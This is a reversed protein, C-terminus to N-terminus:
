RTEMPHHPHGHERRLLPAQNARGHHIKQYPDTMTARSIRCDILFLGGQARAQALAAPLGAEQQLLVGDGGLAKALAVFDPSSWRALEPDFGQSRLKHVEAGYGADNLLLLVLPVRSRVATELEQLHFLLSGDGEILIRPERPDALAMGLALPLTQGVAGFQSSFQIDADEPLALYMGVFGFFHGAGCTIRSGRPLASSLQRMLLRPDLGDVPRELPPAPRALISRAQENRWGESRAKRGELLAHAAAATKRADGRLFRGPLVGIQAPPQVDVRAVSASPFLLGGETTYYGLEAGFGVVFDADALLEESPGSSFAGAIGLDWPHGDFLGKAQLSTALLAGVRDALRVIEERAGSARAGRGGIIVPRKAALLQDVLWEVSDADAGAHPAVYRTAPLYEFDWELEQELLDVPFALAVPGPQAQAAYFAEAIDEALADPRGLRLYRTSCAEVFRRQDMAQLDNRNGAPLEPLLLVLPTRNRAAVMLSTGIQTLGPGWTVTAVGVRGTVRAYGDAMAVAAAEHRAAHMPMGLAAMAGWLPVNGDGMLGFAMEAESRLARALAEAIKMAPM